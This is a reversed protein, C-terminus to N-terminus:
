WTTPTKVQVKLETGDPLMTGNLAEICIEASEEHLFNVFGYGLCTDPDEKSTNARVGKPAIQGFPSFIKYLHENRCDPPLGHIFVTGADNNFGTGGPLAGSAELAKVVDEMPTREVGKGKGNVSKHKSKGGAGYSSKGGAVWPEPRAVVQRAVPSGGKGASWGGKGDSCGSMRAKGGGYPGDVHGSGVAKNRNNAFRVTVPNDVGEPINGNLEQVVYTAEDLTAFQILAATWSQEPTTVVRAQVITGYAGFITEIDEKNLGEPLNTVFVNDSPVSM